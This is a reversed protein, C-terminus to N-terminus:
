GLAKLAICEVFQCTGEIPVVGVSLVRVGVVFFLLHKDRPCAQGHGLDVVPEDVSSASHAPLVVRFATGSLILLGLHTVRLM